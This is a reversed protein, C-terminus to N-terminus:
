KTHILSQTWSGTRFFPSVFCLLFGYLPIFPPFFGLFCSSPFLFLLFPSLLPSPSVLCVPFGVVLYCHTGNTFKISQVCVTGCVYPFLGHCLNFFRLWWFSQPFAHLADKLSLAFLRRQDGRWPQHLGSSAPSQLGPSHAVVSPECSVVREVMVFLSAALIM